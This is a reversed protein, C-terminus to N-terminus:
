GSPTAGGPAAPPEQSSRRLAAVIAARLREDRVGEVEARAVECAAPAPPEERRKGKAAPPGPDQGSLESRRAESTASDAPAAPAPGDSRVDAPVDRPLRGVVFRFRTVPHGPAVDEMRRLIQPGLYMLENAWVSSACEITLCGRSFAKPRTGGAVPDGVARAWATYARAQDSTALRDLTPSLVEGVRRPLDDRRRKSAGSSEGVGRAGSGGARGTDDSKGRPRSM